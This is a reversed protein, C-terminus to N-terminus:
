YSWIMVSCMGKEETVSQSNVKTDGTGSDHDSCIDEVIFVPTQVSLLLYFVIVLDLM